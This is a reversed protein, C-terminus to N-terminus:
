HAKVTSLIRSPYGLVKKHHKNEPHKALGNDSWPFLVNIKKLKDVEIAVLM